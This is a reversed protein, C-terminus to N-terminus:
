EDLKVVYGMCALANERGTKSYFPFGVYKNQGISFVEGPKLFDFSAFFLNDFEAFPCFKNNYLVFTRVPILGPVGSILERGRAVNGIQGFQTGSNSNTPFELSPYSYVLLDSRTLTGSDWGNYNNFSYKYCAFPAYECFLPAIFTSDFANTSCLFQGGSGPVYPTMNGFAASSFRNPAYNTTAVVLDGDTFVHATGGLASELLCMQTPRIGPQGFYNQSADFGASARILVGRQGFTSSQYYTDRDLVYDAMSRMCFYSGNKSVILQMGLRRDVDTITEYVDLYGERHSETTTRTTPNMPGFRHITWGAKELQKKLVALLDNHDSYTATFHKM